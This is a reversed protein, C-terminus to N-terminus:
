MACTPTSRMASPLKPAVVPEPSAILGDRIAQLEVAKKRAEAVADERAVSVRCRKGRERWEIYYAGETDAHQLIPALRERSEKEVVRAASLLRRCERSQDAAEPQLRKPAFLWIIPKKRKSLNLGTYHHPHVSLASPWSNVCNRVCKWM